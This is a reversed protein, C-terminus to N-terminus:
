KKRKLLVYVSGTGGDRPMASCFALVEPYQPLWSNLHNKLVPPTTAFKGKGHIIRVCRLGNHVCYHLFNSLATRAENVNDGHLDLIKEQYVKGQRLDRLVKEQLGSRAFFLKTESTVTETISDSFPFEKAFEEQIIQTKIPPPPNALPELNNKELPKVGRMQARFFASDDPSIKPNKGM